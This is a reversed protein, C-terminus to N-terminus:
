ECVDAFCCCWEKESLAEDINHDCGNFFVDLCNESVNVAAGSKRLSSTERESLKGDSNVDLQQFEWNVPAQCICEDTYYFVVFQVTLSANSCAILVAMQCTLIVLKGIFSM